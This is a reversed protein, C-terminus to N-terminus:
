LADIALLLLLLLLMLLLVVLLHMTKTMYARNALANAALCQNTV